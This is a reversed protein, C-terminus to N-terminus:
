MEGKEAWGYDVDEAGGAEVAGFGGDEFGEGVEGFPVEEEEGGCGEEM